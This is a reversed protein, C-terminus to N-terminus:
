IFIYFVVIILLEFCSSSYFGLHAMDHSFRDDPTDLLIFSLSAQEAVSM